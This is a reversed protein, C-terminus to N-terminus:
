TVAVYQESGNPFSVPSFLDVENNNPTNDVIMNGNNRNPNPTLQFNQSGSNDFCWITAWQQAANQTVWVEITLNTTTTLIGSPLAVYGNNNVGGGPLVLGSSITAATGGSPAVLTGNAGGVSDSADSVFSYRHQLTQASLLCPLALFALTLAVLYKSAACAFGRRQFRGNINPKM